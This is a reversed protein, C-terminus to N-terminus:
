AAEGDLTSPEPKDPDLWRPLFGQL